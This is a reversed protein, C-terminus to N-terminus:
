RISHLRLRRTRPHIADRTRLREHVSSEMSRAHIQPRPAETQMAVDSLMAWLRSNQPLSRKSAKLEIRTGFPCQAIVNRARDRAATSNIVFAYRTM